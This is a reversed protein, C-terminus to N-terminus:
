KEAKVWEIVTPEAGDVDRGLVELGETVKAGPCVRKIDEVASGFGGGDHTVFPHITKGEWGAKQLFSFVPMPATGWYDPFGIYIEDIAELNNPYEALEPRNDNEMDLRTQKNWENPDDSYPIVQRLQFLETGAAKAVMEAIKRTNGKGQANKDATYFVTLKTM